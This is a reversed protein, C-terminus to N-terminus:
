RCVAGTSNLSILSLLGENTMEEALFSEALTMRIDDNDLKLNEQYKVVFKASIFQECEVGCNSILSNYFYDVDHDNDIFNNYFDFQADDFSVNTVEIKDARSYAFPCRNKILSTFFKKMTKTLFSTGKVTTPFYVVQTDAQIKTSLSLSIFCIVILVRLFKM